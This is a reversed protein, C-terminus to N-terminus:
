AADATAEAFRLLRGRAPESVLEAWRLWQRRQGAALIRKVANEHAHANLCAAGVYPAADPALTGVSALRLVRFAARGVEDRGSHLQSMVRSVDTPKTGFVILDLSAIDSLLEYDERLLCESDLHRHGIADALIDVWGVPRDCRAVETAIGESIALPATDFMLAPTTGIPVLRGIVTGAAGLDLVDFTRDDALDRVPVRAASGRGEIRYGGIPAGIWSRVLEAHDALDGGVFEDLFAALVGYEQALQHAAWSEGMVSATVKVPDGGEIYTKGLQDAHFTQVAARLAGRVLLGTRSGPDECRIAQYVIWRAYVWPTLEDKAAILQELIGRHRSRRFMPIGSHYALAEEADGVREAAAARDYFSNLEPTM